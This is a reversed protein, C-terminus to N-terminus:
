LVSWEVRRWDVGREEWVVVGCNGGRGDGVSGEVAWWVVGRGRVGCLVVGSGM